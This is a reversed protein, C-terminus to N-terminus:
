SVYCAVTANFLLKIEPYSAASTTSRVHVLHRVHRGTMSMTCSVLQHTYHCYQFNTRRLLKCLSDTKISTPVDGGDWAVILQYPHYRLSHAAHWLFPVSNWFPRFPLWASTQSRHGVMFLISTLAVRTSSSVAFGFLKPIYGCYQLFPFLQEHM